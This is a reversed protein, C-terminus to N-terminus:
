PVTAGMAAKAIRTLTAVDDISSGEFYWGDQFSQSGKTYTARAKLAYISINTVLSRGVNIKWWIGDGPEGYQLSMGLEPDRSVSPMREPEEDWLACDAAYADADWPAPVPSIPAGCYCCVSVSVSVDYVWDGLGGSKCVPCQGPMRGSAWKAWGINLALGIAIAVPWPADSPDAQDAHGDEDSHDDVMGSRAPTNKCCGKAMHADCLNKSCVACYDMLGVSADEVSRCGARECRKM